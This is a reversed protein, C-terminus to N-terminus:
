FLLCILCFVGTFWILGSVWSLFRLRMPSASRATLYQLFVATPMSLSGCLLWTRAAAANEPSFASWPFVETRTVGPQATFLLAIGFVLAFVGFFVGRGSRRKPMATYYDRGFDDKTRRLGYWLVAFNEACFFASFVGFGAWLGMFAPECTMDEWSAPVFGRIMIGSLLLSGLLAAVGSVAALVYLATRKFSGGATLLLGAAAACAAVCSFVTTTQASLACIRSMNGAAYIDAALAAAFLMLGVGSPFAMQVASKEFISRKQRVAASLDSLCLIPMICLAGGVVLLM